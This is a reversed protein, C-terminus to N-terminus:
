ARTLTSSALVLRAAQAPEIAVHVLRWQEETVFSAQRLSELMPKWSEGLLVLPAIPRAAAALMTWALFVETLTGLSGGVAVFGDAGTVLIRLREFLDAAHRRETVWRNAPGRGAYTEVTVGIARGGADAAGRSCAEMVGGYGGTMVDAGGRVLEAGLIRASSYAPDHEGASSSGYVAILPRSSDM